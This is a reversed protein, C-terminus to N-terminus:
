NNTNLSSQKLNTNTQTKDIFSKSINGLHSKTTKTKHHTTFKAPTLNISDANVNIENSAILNSGSISTDENSNLNISKANLSSSVVKEDIIDTTTTKKSLFGKSRVTSKLDTQNNISSIKINKDANLNIAEDANLNAGVLDINAADANINNAQLTSITNTTISGKFTTDKGSIDFSQKAQSTKINLNNKAQLNINKDANLAAGNINIDNNATININEKANLTSSAGLYNGSQYKNSYDTSTQNINIDNASLAINDSSAATSTLSLNNDANLNITNNALLLADKNTISNAKLNIDNAAMAGSNYINGTADIHIQNNAIILSSQNIPTKDTKSLLTNTILANANAYLKDFKNLAFAPSSGDNTYLFGTNLPNFKIHSIDNPRFIPIDITKNAKDEIDGNNLNTLSAYFNNNAAFIAPYGDEKYSLNKHASTGGKTEWKTKLSGNKYWKVKEEWNYTLYSSVSRELDQGINYLDGGNLRIDHNAYIQSKDNTINAVKFDIDNGAYIQAPIFNALSDPTIYEKTISYHITRTKEHDKVHTTTAIISNSSEDLKLSVFPHSDTGHLYSTKHLNLAYAIPDSLIVKNFLEANLEDDSYSKAELQWRNIIKDKIKSIDTTLKFSREGCCGLDLTSSFNESDIEFKNLSYNNLKGAKININDALITSSANNIENANLNLNNASAMISTAINNIQNASIHMDFGSSITAKDKNIIVSNSNLDASTQAQITNLNIIDGNSNIKIQNAKIIGANNVGVGDKTAIINIKNAYMGGLATSDISIASNKTTTSPLANNFLKGDSSQVKSDTSILNLENSHISSAIKIANAIINTYDGNKDNLGQEIIEIRGQLPNLNNSIPNLNLEKIDGDNNLHIKATTFTSSSANIINLGNINIGSPNAILLDARKGAIELNGKLLSPDNSNVQNIILNASGGNLFPNANVFGAINTNAGNVSNNLVTGKDPTNFKAYENFSIGKSNPTVINVILADNKAKLIVSQHSKHATPDAIINALSTSVLLSISIFISLLQKLFNLM